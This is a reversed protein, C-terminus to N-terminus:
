SLVVTMVFCTLIAIRQDPFVDTTETASMISEVNYEEEESIQHENQRGSGSCM